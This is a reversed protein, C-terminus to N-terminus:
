QKNTNKNKKFFFYIRRAWKKERIISYFYKYIAMRSMHGFYTGTYRHEVKITEWTRKWRNDNSYTLTENYVRWNGIHVPIAKINYDNIAFRKWLDTDGGYKLSTDMLGLYALAKRRFFAAQAPITPTYKFYFKKDFIFDGFYSKFKGEKTITSAIGYVLDVGPNNSIFVGVAKLADKEYMDDAAMLGIYDGTAALIGKNIAEYVGHDKESIYYDIKNIYKDIIRLTDDKSGGDIIIFEKKSYNQNIVSQISEEIFKGQNLTPMIITIKPLYKKM